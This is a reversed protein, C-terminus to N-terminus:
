KNYILEVDATAAASTSGVLKIYLQNINTLQPLSLLQGQGPTFSATVATGGSTTFTTTTSLGTAVLPITCTSSSSGVLVSGATTALVLSANVCPVSGTGGTLTCSGTNSATLTTLVGKGIQFVATGATSASGTVSLVASSNGLVMGTAPIAADAGRQDITIFSIFAVLMSLSLLICLGALIRKPKM